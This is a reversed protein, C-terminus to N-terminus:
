LVDSRFNRLFLKKFWNCISFKNERQKIVWNRFNSFKFSHAPESNRIIWDCYDPDNNFVHQYTQGSYKGFDIVKSNERKQFLHFVGHNKEKCDSVFHQQGCNFCKGDESWIHKEIEKQQSDSLQLSSYDAGRVNNVGYQKMYKLTTALEFFGEDTILEEPESTLPPYKKTWECGHGLIHQIIRKEYDQSKGIYFKNQQLKLIYITTM